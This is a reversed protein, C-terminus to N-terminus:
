SSTPTPSPTATLTSTSTPTSTSTQTSTSTPTIRSKRSTPNSHNSVDYIFGDWSEVLNFIFINVSFIDSCYSFYKLYKLIVKFLSILMQFLIIIWMADYENTNSHRRFPSMAVWSFNVVFTKKHSTPLMGLWKIKTFPKHKLHCKFLM